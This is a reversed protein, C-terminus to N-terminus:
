SLVLEDFHLLITVSQRRRLVEDSLHVFVAIASLLYVIQAHKESYTDRGLEVTVPQSNQLFLLYCAHIDHISLRNLGHDVRRCDPLHYTPPNPNSMRSGALKELRLDFLLFPLLLLFSLLALALAM